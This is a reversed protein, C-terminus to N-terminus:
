TSPSNNLKKMSFRKVTMFGEDTTVISYVKRKKIESIRSSLIVQNLYIGQPSFVDYIVEEENESYILVWLNGEDDFVWGIRPYYAPMIRKRVNEGSGIEQAVPEYERGFTLVKKGDQDFVNIIYEKNLGLYLLAEKNVEWAINFESGTTLVGGSDMRKLRDKEGEFDGLLFLEEGDANSRFIHVVAEIELLDETLPLDEIATKNTRKKYYIRNMGDTKLESYYEEFRYGGLYEGSIDFMSIRRNMPDLVFIRGDTSITMYFFSGLDGPGQGKQGISRLYKGNEDYVKICVDGRDLVCITGDDTTKVDSPRNLMYEEAGEEVGISLEEELLDRVVGERPYAPNTVVKVGEIVEAIVPYKDESAKKCSFFLLIIVIFLSIHKFRSM